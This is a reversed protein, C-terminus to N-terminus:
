GSIDDMALLDVLKRVKDNIGFKLMSIDEQSEGDASVVAINITIIDSLQKLSVTQIENKNEGQSKAAAEDFIRVEFNACGNGKAIDEKKHIQVYNEFDDCYVM